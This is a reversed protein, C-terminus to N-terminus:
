SASPEDVDVDAEEEPTSGLKAAEAVVSSVGPVQLARESWKQAYARSEEKKVLEPIFKKEGVMLGLAHQTLAAAAAQCENSWGPKAQGDEKLQLNIVHDCAVNWRRFNKGSCRSPSCHFLAVHSIEHALVTVRTPEDLGLFWQPNIRLSRGDVCATPIDESWKKELNCYITSFFGAMKTRFLQLGAKELALEHSM